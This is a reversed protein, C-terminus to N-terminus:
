APSRTPSWPKACYPGCFFVHQFGSRAGLRIFFRATLFSVEHSDPGFPFISAQGGVPALFIFRVYAAQALVSSFCRVRFPSAFRAFSWFMQRPGFRQLFHFRSQTRSKAVRGPRLVCSSVFVHLGLRALEVILRAGGSRAVAASLFFITWYIIVSTVRM